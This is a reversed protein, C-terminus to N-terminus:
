RVTITTLEVAQDGLRQSTAGDYFGAQLTYSGRPTDEPIPLLVHDSTVQAAAWRSTRGTNLCPYGDWQAVLHNQGDVLHVFTKYDQSLPQLPRWNLLLHLTDGRAASSRDVSYSDLMMAEGLRAGSAQLPPEPWDDLTPVETDFLDAFEESNYIVYPAPLSERAWIEIRPENQVRVEGVHQYNKLYERSYLPALEQVSSAVLIWEPNRTIRLNRLGGLYWRQLSNSGENSTFSKDVCGWQALTGVTKWGAQVAFGFRPKQPVDKGYPAWYFPLRAWDYNALYEPSQRFFVLYLYGASVLLWAVVLALLGRRVVPRITMSRTVAALPVAALLSWSEMFQYFHTGPYQMVFNHLLFFPVFWLVLLIAAQRHTRWALVLGAGVLLILGFFFYSSNYFTGMEVFYPLNFAGFGGLRTGIYSQVQDSPGGLVIPLYNAIVFLAGAIGVSAALLLIRRKDTARKWGWWALLLLVPALLGVEYHAVLGFAAFTVALVLWRGAGSQAFEWASLVALASLLLVAPQYQVLRSLGLAFGNAALLVGAWFGAASSFLRRGLLATALVSGIGMLAFPLRATAENVTGLARYVVMAVAIQGPGASYRAVADAQGQIASTAHLLVGVEDIHLEHYGLGPLRLFSALLLLAALWGWTSVPTPQIAVPPRWFLALWLVLAGIEYAAILPWLQIPGPLWNVVLVILIMWCLGLGLALLGATPLELRPLRVHALLLAGPLWWSLAMIAISRPWFAPTVLFLLPVAILALLSAANLPSVIGPQGGRDHRGFRLVGWQRGGADNRTFRLLGSHRLALNSRQRKCHCLSFM